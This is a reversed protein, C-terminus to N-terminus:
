VRRWSPNLVVRRGGYHGVFFYMVGRIYRARQDDFFSKSWDYGEFDPGVVYGNSLSSLVAFSTMASDNLEIVAWNERPESLQGREIKQFLKQRISSKAEQTHTQYSVLGTANPAPAPMVCLVELFAHTGDPRTLRLDHSDTQLDLGALHGEWVQRLCGEYVIVEAFVAECSEFDKQQDRFRKTFSQAHDVRHEHIQTLANLLTPYDRLPNALGVKQTELHAERM